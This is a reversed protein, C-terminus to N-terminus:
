VKGAAPAASREANRTLFVLDAAAIMDLFHEIRIVGVAQAYVVADSCRIPVNPEAM